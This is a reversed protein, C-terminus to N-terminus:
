KGKKPGDRKPTDDNFFTVRARMEPRILRDDKDIEISVRVPISAKSRNAEPMLRDVVGTYIKDPFAETRVECRQGKHVRELDRESIDVDVELEFVNAMDCLSASLGNSFAEPRVTNGVEARKVLIRGDIPAVVETCDLDYKANEMQAVALKWAASAKEVDEPRGKRVIELNQTLQEAKREAQIIRSEIRVIEEATTATRSRRLRAAEDRLQDRMAIAEQLTAEAQKIEDPLIAKLKEFESQSQSAMAQWRRYEYQYKTRDLRALVQGKKVDMGEEIFLEVVEGGVKPSVQVRRVPVIYGGAELAVAGPQPKDPKKAAAPSEANKQKERAPAAEQSMGRMALFGSLAAFFVCLAWPLWGAGPRQGRGVNDPLKLSRVRESLTAQTSAAEGDHKVSHDNM